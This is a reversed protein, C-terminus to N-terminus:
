IMEYSINDITCACLIVYLCSELSFVFFLRVHEKRHDKRKM